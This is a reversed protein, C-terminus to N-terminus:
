VNWMIPGGSRWTKSSAYDTSHITKKLHENSQRKRLWEWEVADALKLWDILWAGYYWKKNVADFQFFAVIEALKKHCQCTNTQLMWGVWKKNYDCIVTLNQILSEWEDTKKNLRLSFLSVEFDGFFDVLFNVIKFFSM